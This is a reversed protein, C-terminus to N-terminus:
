ANGETRRRAMDRARASEVIVLDDRYFAPQALYIWYDRIEMAQM